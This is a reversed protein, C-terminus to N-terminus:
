ILLPGLALFGVPKCVVFTCVLRCMWVTQDACKNNMYQFPGYRIHHFGWLRCPGTNIACGDDM